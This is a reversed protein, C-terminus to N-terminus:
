YAYVHPICPCKGATDWLGLNVNHGDVVVNASFNDFVTPVYDQKSLGNVFSSMFFSYFGGVYCIRSFVLGPMILIALLKCNPIHQKYILHAHMDEGCSWGGSHRVQYVQLHEHKGSSLSIGTMQDMIIKIKSVRLGVNLEAVCRRLM